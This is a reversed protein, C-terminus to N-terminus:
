VRNCEYAFTHALKGDDDQNHIIIIMEDALMNNLSVTKATRKNRMNNEPYSKSAARFQMKLKRKERISGCVDCWQQRIGLSV